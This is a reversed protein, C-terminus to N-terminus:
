TYLIAYVQKGMQQQIEYGRQVYSHLKTAFSEGLAVNVVGLPLGPRRLFTDRISHLGDAGTRTRAAFGLVYFRRYLVGHPRAPCDDLLVVSRPFISLVSLNYTSKRFVM